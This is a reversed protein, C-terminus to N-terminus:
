YGKLLKSDEFCFNIFGKVIFFKSKSIKDSVGMRRMLFSLLVRFFDVLGKSKMKRPLTNAYTM